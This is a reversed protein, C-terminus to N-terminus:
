KKGGEDSTSRAALAEDAAKYAERMVWPWPSEPYDKTGYYLDTGALGKAIEMAFQDRLTSEDSLVQGLRTCGQCHMLLGDDIEDHPMYFGCSTCRWGDDVSDWAM